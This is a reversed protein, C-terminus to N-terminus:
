LQTRYIILRELSEQSVTSMIPNQISLAGREEEQVTMVSRM